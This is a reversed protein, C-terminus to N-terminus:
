NKEIEETLARALGVLIAKHKELEAQAEALPPTQVAKSWWCEDGWITEGNDLKIRPNDSPFWYLGGQNDTVVPGDQVPSAKAPDVQWFPVFQCLSIKDLIIEGSVFAEYDFEHYSGNICVIVSRPFDGEYIGSQGAAGPKSRCDELIIVKDGPNTKEQKM